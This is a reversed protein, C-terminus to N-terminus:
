HSTQKDHIKTLQRQIKQAADHIAKGFDPASEKAVILQGNM